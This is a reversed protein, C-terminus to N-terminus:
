NGGDGRLPVAGLPPLEPEVRWGGPEHVCRVSAHETAPDAGEVEVTAQDGVISSRMSKPRFALGFWGAALMEYPEKHQGFAQNARRAREELNARAAPGLLAYAERTASPDDLSEEMKELWLRLAGEPKADPPPHSCASTAALTLLLVLLRARM